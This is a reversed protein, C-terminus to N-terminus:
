CPPASFSATNRSQSICALHTECNSFAHKQLSHAGSWSVEPRALVPVPMDLGIGCATELSICIRFVTLGSSRM